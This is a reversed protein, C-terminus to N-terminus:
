NYSFFFLVEFDQLKIQGLTCNIKTSVLLGKEPNQVGEQEYEEINLVEFTDGSTNETFVSFGQYAIPNSISNEFEHVYHLSIEVEGPNSGFSLESGISLLDLLQEKSFQNFDLESIDSVIKVAIGNRIFTVIDEQNPGAVGSLGQRNFGTYSLVFKTDTTSQIGQNSTSYVISPNTINVEPDTDTTEINAIIITDNQMDNIIGRAFFLNEFMNIDMILSEDIIFDKKCSFSMYVLSLIISVKLYKSIAM